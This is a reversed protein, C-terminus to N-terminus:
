SAAGTALVKGSADLAQVAVYRGPNMVPVATEFGRRAVSGVPEASAPSAGSLVRWSAVETAGNWSVYVKANPGKGRVVVDPPAKPRGVWDAAMVRYSTGGSFTSDSLLTGKATYTSFFPQSGWGVEVDGSPLVEVNGQTASLRTTPPLYEAVKTATMTSTDVNLRLGRSPRPAAENDFVTITGDDQRRADHQWAFGAGPGFDFDSHRGGLQWTIDGTSRDLEYVTHTHRASVLLHDPGDDSVSNLHFYDFPQKQTGDGEKFTQYSDAVPVHDLAHWEFVVKGTAIDVEQVVGDRIWGSKPGGAASLDARVLPFSTLLMTGRETILSEHIDAHHPGLDGGTTVRAIPTYSPDLVVVDGNGYYTSDGSWFTLVPKGQYTQQRFNFTGVDENAVWVPDGAADVIEEGQMSGGQGPDKPALFVYEGDGDRRSSDAKGGRTPTVKPPTLDPRTVFHWSPAKAVATATSPTGTPTTRTTSATSRSAGDHPGTGCAVLAPAVGLAACTLVATATRRRM